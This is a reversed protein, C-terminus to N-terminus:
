LDEVTEIGLISLADTLVKKICILLRLRSQKLTQNEEKSINVQEYFKSFLSALNYIYKTIAQKM